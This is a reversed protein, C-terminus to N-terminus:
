LVVRLLDLRSDAGLKQLVNAQHFKVTRPAIELMTAIDEVGRGRLLLHLVQRERDSLGSLEAVRAVKADVLDLLLLSDVCRVTLRVTLEDAPHATIVRFSRDTDPLVTEALDLSPNELASRVATEAAACGLADLLEGVLRGVHTAGDKAADLFRVSKVVGVRGPARSVEITCDCSISTQARTDSVGRVAIVLARTRGHAETSLGVHLVCRKADRTVTRIDGTKAVGNLGEALLRKVMVRDAQPVCVDVWNRSSLEDHSWGLLDTMEANVFLARYASDVVLAPQAQAIHRVTPEWNMNLSTPAILARLGFLVRDRGEDLEPSCRPVMLTRGTTSYSASLAPLTCVELTARASRVPVSGIESDTAESAELLTAMDKPLPVSVDFAGLGPGGPYIVRAAHLAHRGLARIVPGGYLEDGALPHGIAAFHARIQHRLAKGVRAEVLAWNGSRQLVRYATVAPRPEYRMVDRPHICAYVRRQDKPHDTLPFEITGEDPLGEGACVLLYRKDLKEERLAAKLAAFAAATRAVVVAGSTETDLRHVIGPDRASHGIYTDGDGPVLEPFRGLLANVLTGTEGPRIPATPQGAPKDVVAVEAMELIVKLPAEPTAIAPGDAVQAVDIRLADGRAVSGGKPVRRGNVRVAGLEIARKVRARSLEPVLQAVAKDLRAGDLSEPM